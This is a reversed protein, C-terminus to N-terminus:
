SKACARGIRNILAANEDSAPIAEIFINQYHQKDIKRLLGYLRNMASQKSGDLSLSYEHKNTKPHYFYIVASDISAQPPTEKEFLQMPTQPQYHQPLSGPVTPSLAHAGLVSRGIIKEIQAATIVGPRLIRPTQEDTLDLITSEIGIQCDGGDLILEIKEGLEEEVAIASTPSLRGFRNASPAALPLQSLEIVKQFVPNAPSRVAVTPLGSTVLVPLTGPKQPLLLTLPGPWFADALKQASPNAQAFQDAQALTRIHVILPDNAPRGKAEFVRQCAEASTADAALGYVTETPLAVPHGNQLLFVAEQISESSAHSIKAM